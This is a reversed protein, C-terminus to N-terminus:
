GWIGPQYIDAFSAVWVRHMATRQELTVQLVPLINPGPPRKEERNSSSTGSTLQVHVADNEHLTLAQAKTRITRSWFNSLLSLMIKVTWRLRNISSFVGNSCDVMSVQGCSALSYWFIVFIEQSMPDLNLADHSSQTVIILSIVVATMTTDADHWWKVRASEPQDRIDQNLRTVKGHNRPPVLTAGHRWLYECTGTKEGDTQGDEREFKSRPGEGDSEVSFFEIMDSSIIKSHLKGNFNWAFAIMPRVARQISTWKRLVYNQLNVSLAPGGEKIQTKPWKQSKQMMTYFLYLPM